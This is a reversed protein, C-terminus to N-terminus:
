FMEGDGHDLSNKYIEDTAVMAESAPGPETSLGRERNGSDIIKRDRDLNSVLLQRRRTLEAVLQRLEPDRQECIASLRADTEALQMEACPELACAAIQDALAAILDQQRRLLELRAELPGPGRAAARLEGGLRALRERAAADATEACFGHMLFDLDAVLDSSNHRM